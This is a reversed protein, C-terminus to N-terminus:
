HELNAKSDKFNTPSLFSFCPHKMRLSLFSDKSFDNLDFQQLHQTHYMLLSMTPLSKLPITLLHRTLKAPHEYEHLTKAYLTETM